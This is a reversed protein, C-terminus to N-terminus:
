QVGYKVFFYRIEAKTALTQFYFSAYLDKTNQAARVNQLFNSAFDNKIDFNSDLFQGWIDLSQFENPALRASLVYEAPFLRKYTELNYLWSSGTVTKIEPHKHKIEIFIDKLERVRNIKRESSLPGPDSGENNNFHLQISDDKIEYIFCPKRNYKERDIVKRQILTHKYYDYTAEFIDRGKILSLYTTWILQTEDFTASPVFFIRYLATHTILAKELTQNTLESFKKAFEIQIDFLKKPLM